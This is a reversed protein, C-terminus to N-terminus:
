HSEERQRSGEAKAIAADVASLVDLDIPKSSDCAVVAKCAALLDPFADDEIVAGCNPCDGEPGECGCNECKPM